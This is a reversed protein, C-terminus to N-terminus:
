NSGVRLVRLVQTRTAQEIVIFYVGSRSPLQQQHPGSLRNYKSCLRGSADYLMLEYSQDDVPLVRIPEGRTLTPVCRFDSAERSSIGVAPSSASGSGVLVPMGDADNYMTQFTDIEPTSVAFM